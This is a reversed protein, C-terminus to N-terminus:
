SFKNTQRQGTSVYSQAREQKENGKSRYYQLEEWKGRIKQFIPLIVTCLARGSGGVTTKVNMSMVPVCAKHPNSWNWGKEAGGRGRKRERAGPNCSLLKSFHELM